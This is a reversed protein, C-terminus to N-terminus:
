RHYKLISATQFAPDSWALHHSCNLEAPDASAPSSEHIIRTVLTGAPIEAAPAMVEFDAPIHRNFATSFESAIAGVVSINLPHM